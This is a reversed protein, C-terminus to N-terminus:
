KETSDAEKQDEEKRSEEQEKKRAEEEKDFRTKIKLAKEERRRWGSYVTRTTTGPRSSSSSSSGNANSSASSAAAEYSPPPAEEDERSDKYIFLDGDTIFWMFDKLKVDAKDQPIFKKWALNAIPTMNVGAYPKAITIYEVPFGGAQALKEELEWFTIDKNAVIEEKESFTKSKVHFRMINLVLDDDNLNDPKTLKQVVIERGDYLCQIAKNVVLHKKYIKALNSSFRDRLRILEAPIDLKQSLHEAVEQFTWTQKVAMDFVYKIKNVEEEPHYVFIKFNFEDMSLPTGKELHISGNNLISLNYLTDEPNKLESHANVRRKVVFEHSKLGILPELLLKLEKLKMHVNVVLTQDSVTSGIHNYRITITDRTRAFYDRVPSVIKGEEDVNSPDLEEIYIKDGEFIRLDSRMKSGEGTIEALHSLVEYTHIHKPNMNFTEGLTAKFQQLTHKTNTKVAVADEFQEQAENWKYVRVVFDDPSWRPWDEGDKRTEVVMSTEGYLGLQKLTMELKNEFDSGAVEKYTDYKRLRMNEIKIPPDRGDMQLQSYVTNTLQQLTTHKDVHLNIARGEFFISFELTNKRRKYEARAIEYRTNEMLIKERLYSPILEDSVENLNREPSVRRYVLMYANSSSAGWFGRSESGGFAKEIEGKKLDSVRSDNFKYWKRTEFSKIYAYYHGGQASGSHILISFLEYTTDSKGIDEPLIDIPELDKVEKEKENKKAMKKRMAEELAQVEDGDEEEDEAEREKMDFADEEEDSMENEDQEEEMIGIVSSNRRRSIFERERKEVKEQNIWEDVDLYRPFTVKNNLKVREFRELDIDFRKLQLTILYPFTKVNIGKTVDCKKNCNECFFQNDGDLLEPEVFLDLAKELSSINRIVLPIDLYKDERVRDKKCKQCRLKDLLIGQYLENIFNEQPTDKFSKELADFLVRNLEQIDHQEFADHASWGFSKTLGTTEVFGRKSMQLHAFLSQLQYPISDEAPGEKEEVYRWQYLTKRFEPTMFLTQLLSNMYCTAGQNSLGVFGTASKSSFFNWPVNKLSISLKEDDPLTPGQIPGQVGNSKNWDETYGLLMPTDNDEEVKSPGAEIAM